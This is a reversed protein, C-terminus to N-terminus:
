QPQRHKQANEAKKQGGRKGLNAMGEPGEEAARTTGGKRGMQSYQEPHLRYTTQGGQRSFRVRDDHTVHQKSAQAARLAREHEQAPSLRSHMRRAGERQAEKAREKGLQVWQPDAHGEIFLQRAREATVGLKEGAEPLSLGGPFRRQLDAIRREAAESM